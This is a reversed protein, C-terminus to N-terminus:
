TSATKAHVNSWLIHKRVSPTYSRAYHSIIKERLHINLSIYESHSATYSTSLRTNSRQWLGQYIMSSIQLKRRNICPNETLLEGYYVHLGVLYMFNELSQTKNMVYTLEVHKPGWRDMKLLTKCATHASKTHPLVRVARCTWGNRIEYRSSTDLLVSNGCVLRCICSSFGEQHHVPSTWFM